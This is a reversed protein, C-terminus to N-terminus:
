GKGTDSNSYRKYCANRVPDRYLSDNSDGRKINMTTARQNILDVKARVPEDSLLEKNKDTSETLPSKDKNMVRERIRLAREKRDIIEQQQREIKSKILQEQLDREDKAM